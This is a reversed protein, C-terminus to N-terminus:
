KIEWWKKYEQEAENLYVWEGIRPSWLVPHADTRLAHLSKMPADWAHPALSFKSNHVPLIVKAGLDVGAQLVEEPLMHIAQWALNYQGNDLIAIDVPGWQEKLKAFHVGYGSDGGIYISKEPTRLLFSCWLTSNRKFTRGSFHRSPWSVAELNPGLTIQTYWDVEVIQEEDYGWRVLHAGVGLGCLVKKVKPQLAKVTQYDLHDYHDHTIILWDLSAFDDATFQDAGLFAKTTGPVPSANGSFVPDVLMKMGQLQMYYSSHGFWIWVEENEPLQALDQRMTPVAELPKQNPVTKTLFDFFVKPMSYGETLNPTPQINHFQGNSYHPSAKMRALREGKPAAGVVPLRLYILISIFLLILIGVLTSLILMLPSFKRKKNLGMDAPFTVIEKPFHM